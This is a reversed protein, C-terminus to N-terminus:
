LKRKLELIVGNDSVVLKHVEGLTLTYNIKQHGCPFNFCVPYNYERVKDLIIEEVTQGFPRETDELETFSGVILAKLHDLKGARKLTMIMRDIQYLHEGIDEIFLIKEETNVESASGMLHTLIALNGGTITAEAIGHRNHISDPIHYMISEGMLAAHFTRLYAENVTDPAFAGCMPSHLSPMLYRSELHSHLITIDSFGCIWKPKNLFAKFDIEDIIRSLGYGGRGMLIADIGPDDMMQQLDALREADTGSFYHFGTGITKGQKVEFGWNQLTTVAYAVRDHSVYGSPCTIGVVSGKKLFPPHTM